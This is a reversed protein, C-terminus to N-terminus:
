KAKIACLEESYLTAVLHKLEEYAIDIDDNIIKHQFLISSNAQEIEHVSHETRTRLVEEDETGRCGLRDKLTELSPPYIFIFNADINSKNINFAGAVDIDM